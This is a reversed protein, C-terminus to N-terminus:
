RATVFHKIPHWVNTLGYCDMAAHHEPTINLDREYVEQRATAETWGKLVLAAIKREFMAKPTVRSRVGAEELLLKYRAKMRTRAERLEKETPPNNLSWFVGKANLDRGVATVNGVDTKNNQDLGLNDPNVIDMAVRRGDTFVGHAENEDVSTRPHTVVMPLSTVISYKKKGRGPFKVIGLATDAEFAMTSVNYIWVKKMEGSKSFDPFNIVPSIRYSDTMINSLPHHYDAIAYTAQLPDLKTERSELAPYPEGSGQSWQYLVKTDESVVPTPSAQSKVGSFFEAVKAYIKQTTQNM